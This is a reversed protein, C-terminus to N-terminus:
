VMNTIYWSSIIESLHQLQLPKFLHADSLSFAEQIDSCYGSGTLMIIKMQPHNGKTRIEKILELGNLVPMDYDTILLDISNNHISELAEYGNKAKFVCFNLESLYVEFFESLLVLAQMDDDVILISVKNREIKNRLSDM